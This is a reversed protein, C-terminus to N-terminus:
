WGASFEVDHVGSAVEAAGEQDEAGDENGGTGEEVEGAFEGETEAAEGAVDDVSAFVGSEIEGDDGTEDEAEAQREEEPKKSM